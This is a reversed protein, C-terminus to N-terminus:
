VVGMYFIISFFVLIDPTSIPKFSHGKSKGYLDLCKAVRTLFSDPLFLELIVQVTPDMGNPISFKEFFRTVVPIRMPEYPNQQGDTYKIEFPHVKLYDYPQQMPNQPHSCLNHRTQPENGGENPEMTQFPFKSGDTVGFQSRRNSSPNGDTQAM